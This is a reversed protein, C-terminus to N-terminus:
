FLRAKSQACHYIEAIEFLPTGLSVYDGVNVRKTTVIGSVTAYVDFVSKIVGSKEIDDIQKDTLSASWLQFLERM